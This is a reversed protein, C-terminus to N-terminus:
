RAGGLLAAVKKKPRINPSLGARSPVAPTSPLPLNMSIPKIM